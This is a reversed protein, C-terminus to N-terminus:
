LVVVRRKSNWAALCGWVVCIPWVVVLGLGFTMVGVVSSVILMILAGVVTSYLMGLPGFVITLLLALGVSKREVYVVNANRDM